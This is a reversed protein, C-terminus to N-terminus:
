LSVSAVLQSVTAHNSGNGNPGLDEITVNLSTFESNIVFASAMYDGEPMLVGVNIMEGKYDGWLQLCKGEKLEPRDKVDLLLKTGKVYAIAKFKKSTNEILAVQTDKNKLFLLNQLEAFSEKEKAQCDALLTKVENNLKDIKKDQKNIYNVSTAAIGVAILWPLFDKFSFSAHHQPKTSDSNIQDMLKNKVSPPPPISMRDAMNWLTEQLREFHAKVEPFDRIYNEVEQSDSETLTGVLYEELMGSEIIEKASDM